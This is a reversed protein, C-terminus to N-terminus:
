GKEGRKRLGDYAAARAICWWPQFLFIYLFCFILMFIMVPSGWSRPSGLLTSLSLWFLAALGFMAAYLVFLKLRFGHTIKGSFRLAGLPSLGKDLVVILSQSYKLGLLIALTLFVVLRVIFPIGPIIFPTPIICFILGTICIKWFVHSFGALFEKPGAPLNRNLRLCFFIYGISLPLSLFVHFILRFWIGYPLYGVLNILNSCAWFALTAILIKKLNRRYIQWGYSFWYRLTLCNNEM